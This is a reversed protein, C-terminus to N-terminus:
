LAKRMVLITESSMTDAVNNKPAMRKSSIRRTLKCLLTAHYTQLMDALIRDLPVQKGGVKRNGLTWVMLGGPRLSKLIPNLCGDLDQFFSTVRIARDSPLGELSKIYSRFSPSCDRIHDADTKNVRKSGGLSRTDIEHTSSLYRNDIDSDIDQLDVWQLPLYSYQGYPVTTANDGYPPSTVIIDLNANGNAKRVDALMISIKRQYHGHVLQGTETLKSAQEEYHRINRMLAKKFTGLPDCSRSDINEKTRIHLKYTSTRSNSTVRATEALVVWFFRRAWLDNEKRIARRVKSLAIQVDLCFWKDRNPFDAEVAWRGDEDIRSYLENAKDKLADIFFPGSKVRCLLVALPNIDTGSFALGRMMSETMITGSGAFPDGVIEIEPHISCAQRLIAEVVQPVMMAPYQFLGHGYYRRSNGKFSWYDKDEDTLSEFRRRLKEDHHEQVVIM